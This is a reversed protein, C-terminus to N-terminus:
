TATNAFTFADAFFADEPLGREGCFSARAADIMAPAGCAYVEHGSLDAFDDLVAQHVLGRRGDWADGPAEDSLVPIYRLGPLASEWSRALEDLYLGARDRAGWYLTIPRQLGTEIAHEVIGKIPAFGTGGALMVIPRQTEERLWFSGLPGELRLIDKEKMGEFVQTTFRGGDIRRVHLEIHGADHPANAISFSRRQGDALLIDVYQGANFRFAESAPLKLDLLMVDGALRQLKQVRSPLKRVPIDGARTVNRAELVLDSLPRACCFLAYGDAQDAASLAGASFTGHDVTGQVVRGKCAGCAGDRCSHPLLLGAGLAAELVTQDDAADFAHGGPQLSIRYTM